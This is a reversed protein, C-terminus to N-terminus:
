IDKIEEFDSFIKELEKSPLPKGCDNSQENHLLSTETTSEPTSETIAQQSIANKNTLRRCSQKSTKQLRSEILQIIKEINLKFHRKAPIQKLKTELVKFKKCIKIAADQEARSLATEEELEEITKYFWEHNKGKKHWYLLQSLLLGAKVSGLARALDANFAIPRTGLIEAIIKQYNEKKM